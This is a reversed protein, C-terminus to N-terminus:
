VDVVEETHRIVYPWQENKACLGARVPNNLTYSCKEVYENLNRIRHDFFDRQWQIGFARATYSKWNTVPKRLGIDVPVSLMAHLHDPMLLMLRCTWKGIQHYYFASKLLSWAVLPHCLQNTGKPTTCITVFFCPSGSVWQPIYHTLRGKRLQPNKFQCKLPKPGEFEIFAIQNTLYTFCRLQFIAM